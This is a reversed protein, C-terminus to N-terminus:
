RVVYLVGKFSSPLLDFRFIKSELAGFEHM